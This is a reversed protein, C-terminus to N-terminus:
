WITHVCVSACAMGFFYLQVNAVCQSRVEYEFDRLVSFSFASSYKNRTM